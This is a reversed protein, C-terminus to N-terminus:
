SKLYGPFLEGMFIEANRWTLEGLAEPSQALAAAAARIVEVLPYGERSNAAPFAVGPNESGQSGSRRAESDPDSSETEFLLRNLPVTMLAQRLKERKSDMLGANFSFYAGLEALKKVMEPAGGYAHLMFAPPAEEKLIGALRDWAKVCHISVPRKLRKALQLQARFIKEQENLDTNVTRDLGIEGVGSPARLLFDGLLELWGSEAKSIFWPHLGFFPFVGKRGALDLVKKWDGPNTGNCLTLKVGASCDKELVKQPDTEGPYNQLHNHADFLRIEAM